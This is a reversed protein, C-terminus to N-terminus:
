EEGMAPVLALMIPVQPRTPTTAQGPTPPATVEREAARHEDVAITTSM